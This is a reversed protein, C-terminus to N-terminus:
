CSAIPRVTIPDDYFASSELRVVGVAELLHLVDPLDLDLSGSSTKGGPWVAQNQSPTTSLFPPHKEYTNSM